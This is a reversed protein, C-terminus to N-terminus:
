RYLGRKAIYEAVPEPVLYRISRGEGVRRRVESSSIPLGPAEVSRVEPRRPGPLPEGPRAVVAVECASFIAEPERWGAMEPYTDSGVILVLDDDPRAARLARVTDVTYSPGERRIEIDSPLFAPHGATALCVM